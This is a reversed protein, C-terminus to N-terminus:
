MNNSGRGQPSAEAGLPSTDPRSLNADQFDPSRVESDLPMHSYRQTDGMSQSANHQSLRSKLECHGTMGRFLAMGGVALQLLGSLGGRRIGNGLLMLGGALSAAREMGHVNQPATKDFIRNM